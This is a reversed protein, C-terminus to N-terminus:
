RGVEKLFEGLDRKKGLKLKKKLRYRHTEVGRVSINMLPAIEKNPLNMKIYASLKLDKHTLRPYEEKLHNFFAEHVQNFNHEFLEWEDNDGISRDIRRIIKNYTASGNFKERNLALDRKLHQLTENKKVLSMATNALQKSKLTLENQLSKNKLEIIKKKNEATKQALLKEQEREYKKRLLQQEKAIKRQHLYYFLGIGILILLLYLVFGAKGLYWPPSVHFSLTTISSRNGFKNATRLYIKPTGNSLNTYNIEAKEAKIWNTTDRAFTYEFYHNNNKPATVFIKVSSNHNISIGKLQKPNLTDGNALIQEVQPAQLKIETQRINKDILLFGENLSLLWKEMNFDLIRESGVVLRDSYLKKHIIINKYEKIGDGISIFDPHKIALSEMSDESIITSEKGYAENLLPAPVISDLLPEYKQWGNNTKFVIHNKLRYVRVNFDSFLGKTRYNKITELNTLDDKLTIKYLGRYAHAAWLTNANEFAIYKFPNTPKGFHSVAWHGDMQKKFKVLGVYTGQIFTNKTEPVKKIDFGGTFSSILILSKNSVLYTGNNHGCFLDGGIIKLSWVQGQSGKIFELQGAEDIYYLGTNSGIYTTGKYSIVDYVAGLKGTIDNYYIFNDDLDIKAMGSDLGIWLDNNISNCHSLVTNNQLGNQKNIHYKVRGIKDTLYIGNKITGFVMTGSPTRSFTNLQHEKFGENIPAEWSTLKKDVLYYCGNLATTVFMTDIGIANITYIKKDKLFPNDLYTTLTDNQLELIGHKLTAVLIKGNVRNCSIITSPAKIPTVENESALYITTFSRFLVKNDLAMIQWFEEDTFQKNPLQKSLSTYDLFGNKNKQWYGFEEYSGVYIKGDKALVSRVITKNPMEHLKWTLGDFVLLGMNNAIYVKGNSANSVGWNQNGARYDSIEYNDIYPVYQAHVSILWGFFLLVLYSKFVRLFMKHRIGYTSELSLVNRNPQVRIM